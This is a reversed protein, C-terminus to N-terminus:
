PKTSVLVVRDNWPSQSLPYQDPKRRQYLIDANDRYPHSNFLDVYITPFKALSKEIDARLIEAPIAANDQYPGAWSRSDHYRV